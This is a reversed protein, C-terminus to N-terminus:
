SLGSHKERVINLLSSETSTSTKPLKLLFPAWCLHYPWLIKLPALVHISFECTKGHGRRRILTIYDLYATNPAFLFIWPTNSCLTTFFVCISIFLLASTTIDYIGNYFNGPVAPSEAWPGGSQKSWKQSGGAGTKPHNQWLTWTRVLSRGKDM